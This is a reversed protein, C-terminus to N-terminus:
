DANYTIIKIIINCSDIRAENKSVNLIIKKLEIINNRILLNIKLNNILYIERMICTLAKNNDRKLGLLYMLILVYEDINHMISDLGKVRLYSLIKKIKM